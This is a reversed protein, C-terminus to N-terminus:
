RPDNPVARAPLEYKYKREERSNVTCARASFNGLTSQTPISVTDSRDIKRGELIKLGVSANGDGNMGAPLKKGHSIVGFATVDIKWSRVYHIDNIVIINRALDEYDNRAPGDYIALNRFSYVRVSIRKAPFM